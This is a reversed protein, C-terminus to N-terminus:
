PKPYWNGNGDQLWEGTGAKEAIQSARRQGVLQATTGQQQAIAAYIQQRDSNEAAVLAQKENAKGIFELLGQNNEGILGSSKLAVIEPLRAKMREKVGQALGQGVLGLVILLCIFTAASLPHKTM